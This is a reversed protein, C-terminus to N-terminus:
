VDNLMWGIGSFRSGEFVGSGATLGNSGVGVGMRGVGVGTM